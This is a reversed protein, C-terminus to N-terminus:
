LPIYGPLDLLPPYCVHMGRGIWIGKLMPPITQSPPPMFSEGQLARKDWLLLDTDIKTDLSMISTLTLTGKNYFPAEINWM